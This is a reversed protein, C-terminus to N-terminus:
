EGQAPAQTRGLLANGIFGGSTPTPAIIVSIKDSLKDAMTKQILLPNKQILAGDRELQASAIQGLREQRYAEADALKRRSEAEGHAEIQRAQANAEAMKIRTIKDAEAELGRQEIQKQKFPLIHKMAEAQAKAAIIQEQGAAEAAKERRVKDAEAELDTQKVQKEKLELTYRMKESALEEALLRDMGARYDAPLEVQGIMASILKIGDKGLMEGLEKEISEKIEQRKTSFIERVTYRALTKYLVAQAAPDVVQGGIDDPLSRAASSLRAPDLAYRITIDVGISLGEVTQFPADGEPRYLQDRLSFRRLEHLGPIVLVAGERVEISDGTLQNIRVGAEGRTVSQMPPHNALAYVGSGAIALAIISRRAGHVSRGVQGAARGTHGALNGLSARLSDFMDLFREKM